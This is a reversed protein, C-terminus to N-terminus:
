SWSGWWAVGCGMDISDAGHGMDISDAGHGATKGHVAAQHSTVHAAEQRTLRGRQSSSRAANIFKHYRNNTPM